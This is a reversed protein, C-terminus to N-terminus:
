EREKLKRKKGWIYEELLVFEKVRVTCATERLKGITTRADELTKFYYRETPAPEGMYGPQWDAYVEIKNVMKDEPM